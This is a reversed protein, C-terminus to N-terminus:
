KKAKDKEQKPERPRGVEEHVVAGKRQLDARSDHYYGPEKTEDVPPPKSDKKPEEKDSATARTIVLRLAVPPLQRPAAVGRGSHLKQASLLM